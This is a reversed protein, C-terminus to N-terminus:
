VITREKTQMWGVADCYWVTGDSKVALDGVSTSRHRPEEGDRPHTIVKGGGGGPAFWPEDIHNTLRWAEELDDTDVEAVLTCDALKPPENSRWADFFNPNHWIQIM